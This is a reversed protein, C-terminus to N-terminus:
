PKDQHCGFGNDDSAINGGNQQVDSDINGGNKHQGDCGINGGNKQINSDINGGNKHQGDCGINGSNQQVNSDINGGNKQQGLTVALVDNHMNITMITSIAIIALVGFKTGSSM